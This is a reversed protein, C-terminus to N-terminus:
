YRCVADRRVGSIVRKMRGRVRMWLDYACCLNWRVVYKRCLYESGLVCELWDGYEREMYNWYDSYLSHVGKDLCKSSTRYYVYVTNLYTLLSDAVLNPYEKRIFSIRMEFGRLLDLGKVSVAGSISDTRQRYYYLPSPVIGYKTAEHVVLHQWYIDEFYRGVPFLHQKVINARYLKGWAFNKIAKDRVLERIADTRSLNTEKDIGGNDYYLHDSSAYYVGGQVVECGTVTAYQYLTNLANSALWDDADLFYVYEGKAVRMGVNRADSLGGNEKDILKIGDNAEAYRRCIALSNDTSGDNVLIIEIDKVEQQLVSDICQPLYEAMNYIPVIVSITAM